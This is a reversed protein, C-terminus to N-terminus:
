CYIRCFTITELVFSHTVSQNRWTKEQTQKKGVPVEKREEVAAEEADVEEVVAPERKVEREVGNRALDEEKTRYYEFNFLGRENLVM